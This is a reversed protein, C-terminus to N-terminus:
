CYSQHHINAGPISSKAVSTRCSACRETVIKCRPYNILAVGVVCSYFQALCSFTNGNPSAHLVTGRSFVLSELPSISYSVMFMTLLSQRVEVSNKFLWRRTSDPSFELCRALAETIVADRIRQPTDADVFLANYEEEVHLDDLQDCSGACVESIIESLLKSDETDAGQTSIWPLLLFLGHLLTQLVKTNSAPYHSEEPVTISWLISLIRTRLPPPSSLAAQVCWM